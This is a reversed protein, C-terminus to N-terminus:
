KEIISDQIENFLMKYNKRLHNIVDSNRTMTKKDKELEDLTKWLLEKGGVIVTDQFLDPKKTQPMCFAFFEFNYQKYIRESESYKESSLSCDKLHEIEIGDITIGLFGAITKLFYEKQEGDLKEYPSFHVYPLFFCDWTTNKEVLIKPINNRNTKIFYIATYEPVNKINQHIETILDDLPKSKIAKTIEIILWIISLFFLLEIITEWRLAKLGFKDEFDSVMLTLLLAIFVGLPTSWNNKAALKKQYKDLILELKSSNIILDEPLQKQTNNNM